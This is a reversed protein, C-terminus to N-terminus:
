WIKFLAEGGVHESKAEDGTLIGKPTSLVIMGHGYKVPHIDKAGFYIRRSPKSVRQVNSIRPTGEKTEIGIELQHAGNSRDKKAYSKIYGTDFLVRAIEAKINSYPTMVTEKGAHGGNKITILMNSIPDM